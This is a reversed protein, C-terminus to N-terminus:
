SRRLALAAGGAILGAIVAKQGVTVPSWAGVDLARWRAGPYLVSTLSWRDVYVCFLNDRSGAIRLLEAEALSAESVYELVCSVYVVASDGEIEGVGQTIDAAISNQCLPCGRLDVCADGCAYARALRTHAGADPDGVVVLPRGLARARAQAADFVRKRRQFRAIALTSEYAALLAVSAALVKM